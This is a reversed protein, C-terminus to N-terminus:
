EDGRADVMLVEDAFLPLGLGSLLDAIREEKASFVSMEALHCQLMEILSLARKSVKGFGGRHRSM